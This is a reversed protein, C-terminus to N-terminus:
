EVSDEKGVVLKNCGEFFNKVHFLINGFPVGSIVNAGVRDHVEHVMHLDTLEDGEMFNAKSKSRGVKRNIRLSSKMGETSVILHSALVLYVYTLCILKTYFKM